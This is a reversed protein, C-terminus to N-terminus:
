VPAATNRALDHVLQEIPHPSMLHIIMARQRDTFSALDGIFTTVARGTAPVIDRRVDLNWNRQPDVGELLIRYVFPWRAEEIRLRRRQANQQLTASLPGAAGTFEVHGGNVSQRFAILALTNTVSVALPSVIGAHTAALQAADGLFNSTLLLWWRRWSKEILAAVRKDVTATSWDRTAAWAKSNVWGQEFRRRDTLLLAPEDQARIREFKERVEDIRTVDMQWQTPLAELVDENRAVLASLRPLLVDIDSLARLQTPIISPNTILACESELDVTLHIRAARVALACLSPARRDSWFRENEMHSLADDARVSAGSEAWLLAGFVERDRQVFGVAARAQDLVDRAAAADGALWREYADQFVLPSNADDRGRESLIGAVARSHGRSRAVRVREAAEADAGQRAEATDGEEVGLRALLWKRAASRKPLDDAAGVLFRGCEDRWAQEAGGVDELRLRHYVLEAAIEPDDLPEKAYWDAARQDIERVLKPQDRELLSLAATRVEARLRLVDTGEVLAMERELEPFWASVDDSPLKVSKSLVPKVMDATLRRLVLAATAVPKFAPNQVRDLIRDYLYGAVIEAPLKDPLDKASGGRELLQLALRVILPVGGALDLVRRLVDSDTVGHQRLWRRADPRELGQLRLPEGPRGGLSLEPVPARGTVILRFGRVAKALTELVPWLEQYKAAYQAAEFSDLVLLMSAHAPLAAQLQKGLKTAYTKWEAIDADPEKFRELQIAAQQAIAALVSPADDPALDARDFDLWLLLTKPPLQLAFRAVLASKGIGGIGSVALPARSKRWWQNLGQLEKARGRFDSGAIADLRSRVRKRELVRTVQAPTPIGRHIGAFWRSAQIWASLSEDDFEALDYPPGALIRNIVNQLVVTAPTVTPPKFSKRLADLSRAAAIIRTRESSKMRWTGERRDVMLEELAKRDDASLRSPSVAASLAAQILIPKPPEKEAPSEEVSIKERAAGVDAVHHFEKIRPWSKSQRLAAVLAGRSIARNVDAVNDFAFHMGIVRWNADVVPAGLSGLETDADYTLDEGEVSHLAGFSVGQSIGGHLFQVVAVFQGEEAADFGLQFVGGDDEDDSTTARGAAPRAPSAAVRFLALMPDKRTKWLVPMADASADLLEPRRTFTQRWIRKGARFCEAQVAGPRVFLVGPAVILNHTVFFGTCVEQTSKSLRVVTVRGKALRAILRDVSHIGYHKGIIM